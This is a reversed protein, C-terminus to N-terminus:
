RNGGPLAQQSDNRKIGRYQDVHYGTATKMAEVRYQKGVELGSMSPSHIRFAFTSDKFEGALVQDVRFTVIWNAVSQPLTSAEVKELTGLLVLDATQIETPAAHYGTQQHEPPAPSTNTTQTPVDSAGSDKPQHCRCSTLAALVFVAVIKAM